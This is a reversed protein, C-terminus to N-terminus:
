PAFAIAFLHDRTGTPRTVWKDGGNTTTMIVGRAGSIVARSKSEVSIGYLTTNEPSYQITWNYGGNSTRLIAGDSGIAWGHKKDPAFKVSNVTNGQPLPNQWVWGPPLQHQAPASPPHSLFLGALFTVLVGFQLAHKFCVPRNNLGTLKM